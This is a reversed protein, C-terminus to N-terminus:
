RFCRLGRQLCPDSLIQQLLDAGSRLGLAM